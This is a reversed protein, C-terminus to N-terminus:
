HVASPPCILQPQKFAERAQAEASLLIEVLRLPASTGKAFRELVIDVAPELAGCGPAGVVASLAELCQALTADKHAVMALLEADAQEPQDLQM